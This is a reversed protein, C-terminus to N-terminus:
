ASWAIRVDLVEFVDYNGEDLVLVRPPSRVM